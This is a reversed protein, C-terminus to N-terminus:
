QVTIRYTEHCSMCGSSLQALRALVTDKLAQHGHARRVATALSDFEGHVREAMVKWGAPLLAELAPDAAAASGGPALAGLLALTDGTVAAALGGGVAGLLQRMEHLVAQQAEPPLAVPTRPDISVGTETPPAKSAPGCGTLLLLAALTVVCLVPRGAFRASM